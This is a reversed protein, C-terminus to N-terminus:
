IQTSESVLKGLTLKGTVICLFWYTGRNELIFEGSNRVIAYSFGFFVFKQVYSIRTGKKKKKYRKNLSGAHPLISFFRLLSDAICLQAGNWGVVCCWLVSQVLPNSMTTTTTTTTPTVVATQRWSTCLAYREQQQEPGAIRSNNQPFLQTSQHLRNTYLQVFITCINCNKNAM